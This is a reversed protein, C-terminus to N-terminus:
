IAAPNGELRWRGTLPALVLFPSNPEPKPRVSHPLNGTRATGNGPQCGARPVRSTATDGPAQREGNPDAEREEDEAM